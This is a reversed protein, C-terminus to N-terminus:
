LKIYDLLFCAALLITKQEIEMEIPFCLQITSSNKFINILGISKEQLKLEDKCLGQKDITFILKQSKNQVLLKRKAFKSQHVTGLFNDPPAWVFLKNQCFSYQKKVTIVENGYYNFIKLKFKECATEQTALFVKEGDKNLITYSIGKTGILDHLSDKRKVICLEELICIFALGPFETNVNPCSMWKTTKADHNQKNKM